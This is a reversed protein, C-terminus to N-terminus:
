PRERGLDAAAGVPRPGDRLGRLGDPLRGLDRVEEPAEPADPRTGTVIEVAYRVVDPATVIALVTRQLELLEAHLRAAADRLAAMAEMKDLAYQISRTIGIFPDTLTGDLDFLLTSYTM